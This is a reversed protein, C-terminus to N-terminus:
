APKIHRLIDLTEQARKENLKEIAFGAHVVVYDGIKANRILAISIWRKTGGSSVVAKDNKKTLIKMPIGLCM